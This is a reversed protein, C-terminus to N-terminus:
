EEYLAAILQKQLDSGCRLLALPQATMGESGAPVDRKLRTAATLSFAYLCIEATSGRFAMGIIDVVDTKRNTTVGKWVTPAETARGLRNLYEVLTKENQKLSDETLVWSYSDVLDSAVLLGVQILHFGPEREIRFRNFYLTKPFSGQPLGIELRIEKQETKSVRINKLYM